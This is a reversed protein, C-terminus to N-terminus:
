AGAHNDEQITHAWSAISAPGIMAEHAGRHGLNLYCPRQTEPSLEGCKSDNAFGVGRQGLMPCDPQHQMRWPIETFQKGVCENRDFSVYPYPRNVGEAEESCQCGGRRAAQIAQDEIEVLADLLKVATEPIGEGEM